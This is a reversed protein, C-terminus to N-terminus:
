RGCVHRGVQARREDVQGAQEGCGRWSAYRGPCRRGNASHRCRHRRSSAKTAAVDVACSHAAPRATPWTCEPWTCGSQRRHTASQRNVQSNSSRVWSSMARAGAAMMTFPPLESGAPLAMVSPSTVARSRAQRASADGAPGRSAAMMPSPVNAVNRLSSIARSGGQVGVVGLGAGHAHDALPALHANRMERGAQLIGDVVSQGVPAPLRPRQEQGHALIPADHRAPYGSPAATYAMRPLRALRGAHCATLGCSMLRVAM